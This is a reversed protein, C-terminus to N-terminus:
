SDTVHGMQLVLAFQSRKTRKETSRFIFCLHPSISHIGILYEQQRVLSLNLALQPLLHKFRTWLCGECSETESTGM